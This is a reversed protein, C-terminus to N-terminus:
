EDAPILCIGRLEHILDQLGCELWFNNARLFLPLIQNFFRRRHAYLRSLRSLWKSAWHWLFGADALIMLKVKVLKNCAFEIVLAQVHLKFFHSNKFPRFRTFFFETSCKSQLIKVWISSMPQREFTNCQIEYMKPMQKWLFDFTNLHDYVKGFIQQWLSYKYYYDPRLIGSM